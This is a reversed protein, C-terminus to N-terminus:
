FHSLILSVAMSFSLTTLTYDVMKMEVYFFPPLAAAFAEM